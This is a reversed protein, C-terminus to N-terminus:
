CRVPSSHPVCFLRAEAGLSADTFVSPSQRFKAPIKNRATTSKGSRAIKWVSVVVQNNAAAAESFLLCM